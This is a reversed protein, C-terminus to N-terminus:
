FVIRLSPQDSYKRTPINNRRFLAKEPLFTGGFFGYYPIVTGAYYDFNNYVRPYFNFIHRIPLFSITDYDVHM